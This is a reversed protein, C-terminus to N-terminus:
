DDVEGEFLAFYAGQPDRAVLFRGAPIQTPPVVVDGRGEEIRGAARDIDEVTFYVLWHSPAQAEAPLDMMGANLRDRNFMSWVAPEENVKEFRWGFLESYFREAADRDAANLQNMSLAGPDNVLRAGISEKPQWVAFAAGQPDQIVAMRGAEMVDFPESILSAGLEEARAAAADADAVTVYSLWSPPVGEQGQQYLACVELGDKRLMTYVGGGPIPNDEAEWGLLATYFAKAAEADTTGLDTWSFTGPAHETREGV